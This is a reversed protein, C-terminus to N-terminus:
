AVEIWVARAMAHLDGHESFLASCTHMKRGDRGLPWATLVYSGRGPVPVRLDATLRGLLMLGIDGLLNTVLGSPCDLAAWVFEPRVSGSEDLLSPDPTWPSAYLRRDEVQGPFIRLGDGAARRPGCVFCTPYPHEEAWEYRAAADRAQEVSVPKPGDIDLAASAGEAILACGDWLEVGDGEGPRIELARELPPPARLTVQAVGDISAALVGCAYGGNASDPPGCFRGDIVIQSMGCAEDVATIADLL